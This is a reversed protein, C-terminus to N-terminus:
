CFWHLVRISDQLWALRIREHVGALHLCHVGCTTGLLGSWSVCACRLDDFWLCLTLTKCPARHGCRPSWTTVEHKWTRGLEDCSGLFLVLNTLADGSTNMLAKKPPRVSTFLTTQEQAHTVHKNIDDLKHEHARTQEHSRLSLSM